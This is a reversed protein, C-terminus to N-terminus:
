FSSYTWDEIISDSGGYAQTIYRLRLTSATLELVEHKVTGVVNVTSTYALNTENDQWDWQFTTTQSSTPDCRIPGQDFLLSKDRKFVIFNDRECSPQSAYTNTTTSIGNTTFQTTYAALRWNKATLLDTKSPPTAEDKQCSVLNVALLVPLLLRKM